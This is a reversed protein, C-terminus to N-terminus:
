YENFFGAQINARLYGKLTWINNTNVREYMSDPTKVFICPYIFAQTGFPTITNSAVNQIFQGLDNATGRNIMKNYEYIHVPIPLDLLEMATLGLNFHSGKDLSIEITVLKHLMNQVRCIEGDKGVLFDRREPTILRLESWELLPLTGIITLIQSPDYTKIM